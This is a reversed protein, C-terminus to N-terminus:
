KRRQSLLALRLAFGVVRRVDEVLTGPQIQGAVWATVDAQSARRLSAIGLEDLADTPEPRAAAAVPEIMPSSRVNVVRHTDPRVGQECELWRMGAPAMAIMREASFSPVAVVSVIAAVDAAGDDAYLAVWALSM